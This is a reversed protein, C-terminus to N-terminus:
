RLLPCTGAKSTAKRSFFAPLPITRYNAAPLDAGGDPMVGPATDPRASRGFRRPQDTQPYSVRRLRPVAKQARMASRKQVAQRQRGALVERRLPQPAQAIIDLRMAISVEREGDEGVNGTQAMM